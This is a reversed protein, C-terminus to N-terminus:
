IGLLGLGAGALAGLLGNGGASNGLQYGAMAGGLPALWNSPSQVKTSSTSGMGGSGTAIGNAAGLRNWQAMDNTQWRDVEDQKQRTALDDYASGVMGLKDYPSFMQDYVGPAASIGGLTSNVQDGLISRQNAINADWRDALSKERFDGLAGVLSDMHSGSGYRGLGSFQRNVQDMIKNSQTDTAAAWADNGSQDYLDNYKTTIDGGLISKLADSSLGAFPNGQSALNAYGGLAQTTYDSFPVVTSGPYANFGSGSDYLNGAAKLNSKLLPQAADWPVSSSKTVTDAM